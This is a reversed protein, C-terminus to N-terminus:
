EKGIKTWRSEALAVEKGDKVLRHQWQLPAIPNAQAVVVDDLVCEMKYFIDLQEIQHQRQFDGPVADLLWKVYHINNLHDNFDLDHHGVQYNRQTKVETFPAPKSEDRSLFDDLQNVIEEIRIRIDDPVRALRRTQTDMLFWQSVATALLVGQENYIRYDRYTRIREFGSPNTVVTIRDNLGPLEHIQIRIRTLVWAM